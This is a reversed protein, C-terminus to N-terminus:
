PKRRRLRRDNSAVRRKIPALALAPAAMAATMAAVNAESLRIWDDFWLLDGRSLRQAAQTNANMARKMTGGAEAISRGSSQFATVKESVMRNIERHDASLPDLMATMVTPWRLSIVRQAGLMTDATDSWLRMADMPWSWLNFASGSKAAM